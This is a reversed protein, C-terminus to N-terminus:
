LCYQGDPQTSSSGKNPEESNEGSGPHNATIKLQEESVEEKDTNFLKNCVSCKYHAAMGDETESAPVEPILEGYQHEALPM